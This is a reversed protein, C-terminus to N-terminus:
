AAQRRSPVIEASDTWLELAAVQASTFTSVHGNSCVATMRHPLQSTEGRTMELLTVREGCICTYGLAFVDSPM